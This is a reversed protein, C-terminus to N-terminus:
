LFHIETEFSHKNSCYRKSSFSNVCLFVLLNINTYNERWSFIITQLWTDTAKYYYVLAIFSFILMLLINNSRIWNEMSKNQNVAKADRFIMTHTDLRFMSLFIWKVFLVLPPLFIFASILSQPVLGKPIFFLIVM